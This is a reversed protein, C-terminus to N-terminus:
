GLHTQVQFLNLEENDQANSGLHSREGFLPLGVLLAAKANALNLSRDHQIVKIEFIQDLGTAGLYNHGSIKPEYILIEIGSRGWERPPDTDRNKVVYIADATHAVGNIKYSYEGIQSGMIAAVAQHLEATSAIDDLYPPTLPM